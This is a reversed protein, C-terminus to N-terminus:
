DSMRWRTLNSRRSNISMSVSMLGQSVTHLQHLIGVTTAATLRPQLTTSEAVTSVRHHSTQCEGATRDRGREATTRHEDLSPDLDDECRRDTDTSAGQHCNHHRWAPQTGRMRRTGASNGHCSHRLSTDHECRAYRRRVALEGQHDTCRRVAPQALDTLMWAGWEWGLRPHIM